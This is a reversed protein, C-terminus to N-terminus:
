ILNCNYWALEVITCCNLGRSAHRLIKLRFMYIKVRPIREFDSTSTSKESPIWQIWLLITIMTHYDYLPTLIFWIIHHIHYANFGRTAGQRGANQFHLFYQGPWSIGLAIVYVPNFVTSTELSKHHIWVVISSIKM